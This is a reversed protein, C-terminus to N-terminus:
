IVNFADMGNVDPFPTYILIGTKENLSVTGKVAQQVLSYSLSDSELDLAALTYTISHDEFTSFMSDSLVPADNVPTIGLHVVQAQSELTGDTVKVWFEDAGSYDNQPVYQFEGTNENVMLVTGHQSQQTILFVLPDNDPDSAKLTGTLITDENLNFHAMEITPPDNVSKVQIDVVAMNSKLAGDNVMFELQDM